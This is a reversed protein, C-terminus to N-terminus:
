LNPMHGTLALVIVALAFGACLAIAVTGALSHQHPEAVVTTIPHGQPCSARAIGGLRPYRRDCADCHDFYRNEGQHFVHTSARGGLLTLALLVAFGGLFILM